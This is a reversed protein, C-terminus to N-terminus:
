GAKATSCLRKVMLSMAAQAFSASWHRPSQANQYRETRPPSCRQGTLRKKKTQVEGWSEGLGLGNWISENTDSVLQSNDDISVIGEQLQQNNWDAIAQKEESARLADKNAASQRYTKLLLANRYLLYQDIAIPYLLYAAAVAAILFLLLRVLFKRM